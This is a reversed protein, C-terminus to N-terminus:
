PLDRIADLMKTYRERLQEPLESDKAGPCGGAERLRLLFDAELRQQARRYSGEPFFDDLVSLVTTRLKGVMLKSLNDTSRGSVDGRCRTNYLDLDAAAEVANVLLSRTADDMDPAAQLPYALASLILGALVSRRLTGLWPPATHPHTM